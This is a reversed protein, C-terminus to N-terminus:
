CKVQAGTKQSHKATNSINEISWFLFLWAPLWQPTAVEPEERHTHNNNNNQDMMM